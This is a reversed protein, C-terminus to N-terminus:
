ALIQIEGEVPAVTILTIGMALAERRAEPTYGNLAFFLVEQDGRRVGNLERIPKVGVPNAQFKVQAIMNSAKIDIGGDRSNQTKAADVYGLHRSWAACHEEFNEPNPHLLPGPKPNTSAPVTKPEMAASKFEYGHESARYRAAREEQATRLAELEALRELGPIPRGQSNRDLNDRSAVPTVWYGNKEMTRYLHFIAFAVLALWGLLWAWNGDPGGRYSFLLWLGIIGYVFIM